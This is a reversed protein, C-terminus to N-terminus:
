VSSLPCLVCLWHSREGQSSFVRKNLILIRPHLAARRGCLGQFLMQQRTWLGRTDGDRHSHGLTRASVSGGMGPLRALHRCSAAWSTRRPRRAPCLLMRPGALAIARHRNMQLPKLRSLRRPTTLGGRTLQQRQTPLIGGQTEARIVCGLSGLRGWM